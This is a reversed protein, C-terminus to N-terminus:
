ADNSVKDKVITGIKKGFVVDRINGEKKMNCVIIPLQNDMCLTIATADMVKLNKRIVDIYTLTEFMQANKHKEPDKDYVGDVRTGKIIVEAGIEVARLAATTDTTFYPNGTGGAFVIVRGKELHRIARRRIYPEAVQKMELASLVRTFV